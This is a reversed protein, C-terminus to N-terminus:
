QTCAAQYIGVDDGPHPIDSAIDRWERTELDYARLSMDEFLVILELADERWLYQFMIQDVTVREILFEDPLSLDFIKIFHETNSIQSLYRNDPSLQYSIPNEVVLQQEGTRLDFRTLDYDHDYDNQLHTREDDTPILLRNDDIWYPTGLRNILMPDIVAEGQMNVVAFKDYANDSSFATVAVYMEDPSWLFEQVTANIHVDAMVIQWSTTDVLGIGGEHADVAFYHGSHSWYIRTSYPYDTFTYTTLHALDPVSYAQVGAEGGGGGSEIHLTLAIFRSDPSWILNPFDAVVQEGVLPTSVIQGTETNFLALSDTERSVDSEVYALWIGDPSWHTRYTTVVSALVVSINTSNDTLTLSFTFEPTANQELTVTFPEDTPVGSYGPYSSTTIEGTDLNVQHVLSDENVWDISGYEICQADQAGASYVGIVLLLLCLMYKM